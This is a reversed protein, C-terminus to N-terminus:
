HLLLKLLVLLLGLTASALGAGLAQLSHRGCAPAPRSGLRVAPRREARRCDMAAARPRYGARRPWAASSARGTRRARVKEYGILINGYRFYYTDINDIGAEDALKKWEQERSEAAGPDQEVAVDANNLGSRWRVTFDIGIDTERPEIRFGQERLCSKVAAPDFM